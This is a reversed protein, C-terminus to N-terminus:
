RNIDEMAAEATKRALHDTEQVTDLTIEANKLCQSGTLRTLVEEVVEAM